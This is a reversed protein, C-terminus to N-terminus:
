WASPTGARGATVGRRRGRPSARSPRRGCCSTSRTASRTAHGRGPGGGAALRPEPPGAARLGRVTSRTSTCATPPRTRRARRRGARRDAGGDAARLRHRPAHPPGSSASATWPRSGSRSASPPSTRGRGARASPGTSSRTTSTPSTPSTAHGRPGSWELYRRLVDFVLSFRGHGLHPPGYVTPGCVYM